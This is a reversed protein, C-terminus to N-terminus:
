PTKANAALQGFEARFRRSQEVDDLAEYVLALDERASQLWSVSQSTGKSLIDYGARLHSEAERHRKQRLLTRGLKVRSIATNLHDAGLHRTHLDVAERFLREATEFESEALYAGGLNSLAVAVRYHGDPYMHRYISLAREFAAKAAGYHRQRMAINGLENLAFAVRPHSPGYVTEQVTLARQLLAAAEDPQNALSLGQGLITMASATEPHDPGYWESIIGLARRYFEVAEGYQGRNSAIAGLNILDDGVNPHRDGHLRRNFELVRRNLAASETLNGAYFHANALASLTAAMATEPSNLEDHMRVARGLVEIAQSYDGREELVRGLGATAAAMVPHAAPFAEAAALAERMLREADEFQAQEVRLFGLAVLSEVVDPHGDGYMTRRQDLAARLLRDAQDYQGLRQYIEGLTHRLASQLERDGLKEVAQLGRDILTLVRLDSDPAADQEGAHFLGLTFQQIREARRAADLAEDRASSLRLTYFAIVGTLAVLVAAAAALPRWRRRAFKGMRYPLSDHSAELPQGEFFRDLDRALAEVTQYRRAPDRHMSTRCLVDLDRWAARGVGHVAGPSSRAVVSPKEPGDSVIADMERPTRASLDYPRRGTLLEYLIVGLAYVDTQLTAPEGRLQEPAAYAPTMLQLGARTRDVPTDAADLQKAIGFDLLKAAGDATVLVNSPKLDRHIVLRQHAYRVAECISRFLRLREDLPAAHQECYRDLAVGEVYEMAFWPTGDALTDADYLRAIAPHTLQALVRQEIAFRERRSASVWADALVKIAVVNGLDARSALYVVGMGGRGLEHLITYRGIRAPSSAGGPPLLEDAVDLAHRELLSHGDADVALMAAVEAKLQGDDGCEATLYGGREGPPLDAAAHFISQMRHWRAEDM